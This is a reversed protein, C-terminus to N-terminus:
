KNKKWITELVGVLHVVLAEGDGLDLGFGMLDCWRRWRFFDEEGRFEKAVAPQEVMLAEMLDHRRRRALSKEWRM